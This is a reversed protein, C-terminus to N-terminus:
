SSERAAKVYTANKHGWLGRYMTAISILFDLKCVKINDCFKYDM